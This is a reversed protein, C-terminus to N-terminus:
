ALDGPRPLEDGPLEDGRFYLGQAAAFQEPFDRPAYRGGVRPPSTARRVSLSRAARLADQVRPMCQDSSGRLGSQEYGAIRATSVMRGEYAGERQQPDNPEHVSAVSAEEM